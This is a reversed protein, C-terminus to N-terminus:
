DINSLNATLFKSMSFSKMTDKGFVKAMKKDPIFYAKAEPNQLNHEKIYAFLHKICQPRSAESVGIIAELDDSVKM